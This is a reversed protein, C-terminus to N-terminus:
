VFGYIIHDRSSFNFKYQEAADFVKASNKILDARNTGEPMLFVSQNPILASENLWKMFYELDENGPEYVLKIYVREKFMSFIDTATRKAFGADELNFIKPSFIYNIPKDRSIEKMLNYLQYGNSEINAIPYDLDNLLLVTDWFHRNVTPEGGTVLIGSGTENLIEQLQELPYEAEPTIRMKVKTDCWPCHLNCTKFRLILMAKGSDPGEGQWTNFVEILKVSNESM